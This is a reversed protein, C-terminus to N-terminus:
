GWCITVMPEEITNWEGQAESWVKRKQIFPTSIEVSFDPVGLRAARRHLKKARAEVLGAFGALIEMELNM